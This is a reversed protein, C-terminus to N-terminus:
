TGGHIATQQYEIRLPMRTVTEGMVALDFWYLGEEEVELSTEASIIVGREDDGEFLVPIDITPLEKKSPTLPKISVKAKGRMFGARFMIMLTFRISRKGMEPTTGRVMFRDIVRIISFVGDTERLIRECFVAIALHPRYLPAQVNKDSNEMTIDAFILM